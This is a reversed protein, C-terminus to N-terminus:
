RSPKMRADCCRTNSKAFRTSATAIPLRVASSPAASRTSAAACTWRRFAPHRSAPRPWATRSRGETYPRSYVQLLDGHKTLVGDECPDVRHRFLDDVEQLLHRANGGHIRRTLIVDLARVYDTLLQDLESVLHLIKFRLPHGFVRRFM